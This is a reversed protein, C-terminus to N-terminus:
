FVTHFWREACGMCHDSTWYEPPIPRFCGPCWRFRRRRRTILARVLPAASGDLIHRRLVTQSEERQLQPAHSSWTVNPLAIEFGGASVRGLLQMPEGAVHWDGDGLSTWGGGFVQLFPDLEIDLAAALTKTTNADSYIDDRTM